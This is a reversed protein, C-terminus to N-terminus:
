ALPIYTTTVSVTPLRQFSDAEGSETRSHSLRTGTAPRFTPDHVAVGGVVASSLSREFSSRAHRFRHERGAASGQPPFRPHLGIGIGKGTQGVVQIVLRVQFLCELFDDFGGYRYHTTVVGPQEHGALAVLEDRDVCAVRGGLFGVFQLDFQMFAGSNDRDGLRARGHYM